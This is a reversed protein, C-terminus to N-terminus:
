CGHRIGTEQHCGCNPEGYVKEEHKYFKFNIFTSNVRFWLPRINPFSVDNNLIDFATWNDPQENPDLEFKASFGDQKLADIFEDIHINPDQL